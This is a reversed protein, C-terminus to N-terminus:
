PEDADDGSGNDGGAEQNPVQDDSNNNKARAPTDDADTSATSAPNVAASAAADETGTTKEERVEEEDSDSLIIIKDDGPSGLIARNLEGFLRQTVAFDRSTAAILDEEDLSSSLDIVLAKRSLGGARIDALSPSVFLDEVPIRTTTSVWIADASSDQRRQTFSKGGCLSLTFTQHRNQGGNTTLLSCSLLVMLFNSLHFAPHNDACSSIPYKYGTFHQVAMTIPTSEVGACGSLHMAEIVM